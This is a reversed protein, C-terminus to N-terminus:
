RAREQKRLSRAEARDIQWTRAEGHGALELVTRPGTVGFVPARVIVGNGYNAILGPIVGPDANDRLAAALQCIIVEGPGKVGFRVDLYQTAAFPMSSFGAGGAVIPAPTLLRIEAIVERHDGLFVRQEQPYITDTNRITVGVLLPARTAFYRALADRWSDRCLNLDVVEVEFGQRELATTLIDLAYPTVPPYIMNPNVLTVLAM